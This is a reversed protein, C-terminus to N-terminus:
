DNEVFTAILVIPEKEEIPQDWFSRLGSSCCFDKEKRFLNKFWLIMRKKLSCYCEFGNDNSFTLKVNGKFHNGEVSSFNNRLANKRNLEDNLEDMIEREFEELSLIM